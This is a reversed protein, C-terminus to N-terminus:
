REVADWIKSLDAKTAKDYDIYKNREKILREYKSLLLKGTNEDMPVSTGFPDFKFFVKHKEDFKDKYSAMLYREISGGMSKDSTRYDSEFERLIAELKKTNGIQQESFVGRNVNSIYSVNPFYNSLPVSISKLDIAKSEDNPNILKLENLNLYAFPYADFDYM